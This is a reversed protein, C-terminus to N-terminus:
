VGQSVERYLRAFEPGRTAETTKAQEDPVFGFWAGSDLFVITVATLQDGEFCGCVSEVERGFAQCRRAQVRYLRPGQTLTRAWGSRADPSAWADASRLLPTLDRAPEQALVCASSLSLALLACGGRVSVERGSNSKSRALRNIRYRSRCGTKTDSPRRM